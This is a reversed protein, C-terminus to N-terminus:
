VLLVNCLTVVLHPFLYLQAGHDQIATIRRIKHGGVYQQENVMHTYGINALM